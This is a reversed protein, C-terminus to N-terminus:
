LAQDEPPLEGEHEVSSGCSPENGESNCDGDHVCEGIEGIRKEVNKLKELKRLKRLRLQEEIGELERYRREVIIGREKEKTLKKEVSNAVNERFEQDMSLCWELMAVAADIPNTIEDKVIKGTIYELSDLEHMLQKKSRVYCRLGGVQASRANTARGASIENLLKGVELELQRVTSEKAVPLMQNQYKSKQIRVLVTAHGMGIEGKEFAEQCKKSLKNLNLRSKVWAASKCCLDGLEKLSLPCGAAEHRDLMAQLQKAYELDGTDYGISNLLIQLSLVDEDTAVVIRCPLVDKTLDKAASYRWMGDIIEFHDPHRPSQRVVLTQLVGFERISQKLEEYEVTDKRVPRLLSWPSHLRNLPIFEIPQDM